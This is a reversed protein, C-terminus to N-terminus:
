RLINCDTSRCGTSCNMICSHGANAYVLRGADPDFVAYFATVFQKASTDELIRHNVSTLVMDPHSPFDPAYTRILSWILAMIQRISMSQAPTTPWAPRWRQLWITTMKLRTSFDSKTPIASTAIAMQMIAMLMRQRAIRLCELEGRSM